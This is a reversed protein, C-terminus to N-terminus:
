FDERVLPAPPDTQIPEWPRSAAQGYKRKLERHYEARKRYDRANAEAINISAGTYEIPMKRKAVMEKLGRAHQNEAEALGRYAMELRANNAAKSRFLLARRVLKRCQVGGGAVVASILILTMWRRTTM